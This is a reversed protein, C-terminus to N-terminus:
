EFDVSSFKSAKCFRGELSVFKEFFPYTAETRWPLDDAENQMAKHLHEGTKIEMQSLRTLDNSM